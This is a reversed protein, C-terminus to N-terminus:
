YRLRPVPRMSGFLSSRAAMRFQVLVASQHMPQRLSSNLSSSFFDKHSSSLLKVALHRFLGQSLRRRVLPLHAGEGEGAEV